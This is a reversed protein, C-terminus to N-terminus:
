RSQTPIEILIHSEELYQEIVLEQLPLGKEQAYNLLSARIKEPSPAVLYHTTIKAQVAQRAEIHKYTYKEPLSATTDNVLVGVFADVEGKESAQTDYYLAALTGPLKKEQHFTRTQNFLQLLEENSAMGKFAIGAMTYGSVQITSIAPKTLGGLAIYTIMGVILLFSVIILVIKRM